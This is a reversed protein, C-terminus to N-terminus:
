RRREHGRSAVQSHDARDSTNLNIQTNVSRLTPITTSPATVSRPHVKDGVIGVSRAGSCGVGPDRGTRRGFQGTPHYDAISFTSEFSNGNFVRLWAISVFDRIVDNPWRLTLRRSETMAITGCHIHYAPRDAALKGQRMRLFGVGAACM